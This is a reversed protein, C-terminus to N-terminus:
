QEKAVVEIVEADFVEPSAVSRGAIQKFSNALDTLRQEISQNVVQEKKVVERNRLLQRKDINIATTLSLDKGSMPRKVLEGDKNLVSDGIVVRDKLQDLSIDIIENFKADIKHDNEARIEDLLEKFWDQRTWGRLTNEPVGSLGSVRVVSGTAAFLTVAEIKKEDTFYGKKWHNSRVPRGRTKSLVIFQNRFTYGTKKEKSCDEGAFAM